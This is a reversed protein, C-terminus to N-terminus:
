IAKASCGGELNLVGANRACCLVACAFTKKRSSCALEEGGVELLLEPCLLVKLLPNFAHWSAKSCGAQM